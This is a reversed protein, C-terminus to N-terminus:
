KYHSYFSPRNDMWKKAETIMKSFIPRSDKYEFDSRTCVLSKDVEITQIKKLKRYRQEM